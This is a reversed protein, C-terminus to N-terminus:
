RSRRFRVKNCRTQLKPSDVLGYGRAWVTYTAPSLSPVWIVATSNQQAALCGLIGRLPDRSVNGAELGEIKPRLETHHEPVVASNRRQGPSVRIRAAHVSM